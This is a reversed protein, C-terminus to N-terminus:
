PKMMTALHRCILTLHCNCSARRRIIIQTSPRGEKRHPQPESIQEACSTGSLLAAKRVTSRPFRCYHSRDSLLAPKVHYLIIESKIISYVILKTLLLFVIISSFAGYSSFLGGLRSSSIRRMMSASSVADYMASCEAAAKSSYHIYPFPCAKRDAGEKKIGQIGQSAQRSGRRHGDM